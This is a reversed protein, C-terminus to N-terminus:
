GGSRSRTPRGQGPHNYGAQQHPPTSRPTVTDDTSIPSTLTAGNPTIARHRDSRERGPDTREPTNTALNIPTSTRASPAAGAATPSTPPLATPPSPSGPRTGGPGSRRGQSTPLPTSRRSRPAPPTPSTSPKATRPSPSAPRAAGPRSPRARSTPLPTLRHSTTASNMLSTPGPVSQAAVPPTVRAIVAACRRPRTRAAHWCRHRHRVAGALPRRASGPGIHQKVM